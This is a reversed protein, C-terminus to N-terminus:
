ANQTDNIQLMNRMKKEGVLCSGGEMLRKRVMSELFFRVDERSSALWSQGSVSIIKGDHNFVPLFNVQLCVLQTQRRQIQALMWWSNGSSQKRLINILYLYLISVQPLERSTKPLVQWLWGKPFPSDLAKTIRNLVTSMIETNKKKDDTLQSVSKKIFRRDDGVQAKIQQYQPQPLIEGIFTKRLQKLENLIQIYDRYDQQLELTLTKPFAQGLYTSSLSQIAPVPNVSAVPAFGNAKEVKIVEAPATPVQPPAAQASSQEPKQTQIVPQTEVPLPKKIAVPRPKDLEKQHAENVEEQLETARKVALAAAIVKGREKAAALGKEAKAKRELELRLQEECELYLQERERDEIAKKSEEEAAARVEEHKRFAVALAAEYSELEQEANYQLSWHLSHFERAIRVADSVAQRNPLQHGAM